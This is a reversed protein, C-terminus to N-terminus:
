GVFTVHYTSGYTDRVAEGWGRKRENAAQPVEGRRAGKSMHVVVM